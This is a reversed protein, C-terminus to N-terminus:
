PSSESLQGGFEKEDGQQWLTRWPCREVCGLDSRALIPVGLNACGLHHGCPWVELRVVGVARPSSIPRMMANSVDRMDLMFLHCGSM